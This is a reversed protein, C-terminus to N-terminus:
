EGLTEKTGNDAVPLVMSTLITSQYGKGMRRRKAEDAVVRQVGPDTKAPLNLKPQSFLTSM